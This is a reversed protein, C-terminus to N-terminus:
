QDVHNQSDEGLPSQPNQELSLATSIGEKENVLANEEPSLQSLDLPEVGARRPTPTSQLVPNEESSIEDLRSLLNTREAIVHDYKVIQAAISEKTEENKSLM